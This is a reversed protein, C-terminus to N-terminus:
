NLVDNQMNSFFHTQLLVSDLVAAIVSFYLKLFYKLSVPCLLNFCSPSTCHTEDATGIKIDHVKRTGKTKNSIFHDCSCAATKQCRLLSNWVSLKLLAVKSIVTCSQIDSTQCSFICSHIQRYSCCCYDPDNLYLTLRTKEVSNYHHPSSYNSM